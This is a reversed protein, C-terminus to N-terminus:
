WRADRGRRRHHGAPDLGQRPQREVQREEVIKLPVPLAGAKLTLALDQAEQLTKNGSPSRAAATSGARSSRRAPGAGPRGAPDGHLRGRAPRDRRRVQPRGRPRARLQRHRRQHAPRDPRQADVLSTGTVIPKDELAYLLRYSDVGVSLPASAWRLVRQPAAGAAGRRPEAHQRRAPLRAEPVMYEGPMPASTRGGVAPQILGACPM